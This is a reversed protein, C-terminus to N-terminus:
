LLCTTARPFTMFGDQHHSQNPAKELDNVLVCSIQQNESEIVAMAVIKCLTGDDLEVISNNNKTRLLTSWPAMSSSATTAQLLCSEVTVGLLNCIALQQLVNM